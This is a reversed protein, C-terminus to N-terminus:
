KGRIFFVYIFALVFIVCLGQFIRFDTLYRNSIQDVVRDSLGLYELGDEIKRRSNELLSRQKNISHISYSSIKIYDSIKNTSRTLINDSSNIENEEKNEEENYERHRYQTYGTTNERNHM